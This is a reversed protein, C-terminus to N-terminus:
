RKIRNLDLGAKLVFTELREDLEKLAINKYEFIIKENRDATVLIRFWAYFKNSSDLLIDEVNRGTRLLRSALDKQQEWIEDYTLDVRSIPPTYNVSPDKNIFKNKIKESGLCTPNFYHKNNGLLKYAEEIFLSPNVGLDLCFIAAESFCKKYTPNSNYKYNPNTLRKKDEYYRILSEETENIKETSHM